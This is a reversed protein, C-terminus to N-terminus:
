KWHLDERSPVRLQRCDTCALSADVMDLRDRVWTYEFAVDTALDYTVLGSFDLGSQRAFQHLANFTFVRPSASPDEAVLEQATAVYLVVPDDNDGLSLDVKRGQLYLEYTEVYERREAFALKSMLVKLVWTSATESM